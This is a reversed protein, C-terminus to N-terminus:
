AILDPQRRKRRRVQIAMGLAGLGWMALSAPEPVADVGSGLQLTVNGTAIAGGDGSPAAARTFAHFYLQYTRGAILNGSVSGVHAANFYDGGGVGLVLSENTTDRSETQSGFLQLGATLDYLLADFFVIGPSTVDTVSYTGSLNYTMDADVTFHTRSEGGSHDYGGDRKQFFENSITVDSGSQVRDLQIRSYYSGDTADVLHSLPISTGSFSDFADLNNNQFDHLSAKVDNSVITMGGHTANPTVICVAALLIEGMSLRKRKTATRM